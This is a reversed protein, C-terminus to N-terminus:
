KTCHKRTYAGLYFAVCMLAFATIYIVFVRHSILTFKGAVNILPLYYLQTARGIQNFWYHGLIREQFLILILVVFAPFNAIITAQKETNAFNRMLIGLLFWAALSILGIEGYPLAVDYYTTTALHNLAYGMPFPIFGVLFLIWKKM